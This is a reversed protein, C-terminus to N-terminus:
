SYVGVNNLITILGVAIIVGNVLGIETHCEYKEFYIIFKYVMFIFLTKLVVTGFFGIEALFVNSERGGNSLGHWTTILDGFYFLLISIGFIWKNKPLM